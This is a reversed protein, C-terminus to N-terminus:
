PGTIIYMLRVAASLYVQTCECFVEKSGLQFPMTNNVRLLKTSVNINARQVHHRTYIRQELSIAIPFLVFDRRPKGKCKM